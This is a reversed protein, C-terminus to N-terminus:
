VSVVSMKPGFPEFHIDTESWGQQQLLKIMGEMFPM